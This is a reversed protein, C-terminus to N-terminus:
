ELEEWQQIVGYPPEGEVHPIGVVGLGACYNDACIDDLDKCRDCEPFCDYVAIARGALILGRRFLGTAIANRLMKAAHAIYPRCAASETEQASLIHALVIEVDLLSLTDAELATEIEIHAADLHEVNM